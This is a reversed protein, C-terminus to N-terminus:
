TGSRQIETWVGDLLEVSVGHGSTNDVLFRHVDELAPKNLIKSGAFLRLIATLSM